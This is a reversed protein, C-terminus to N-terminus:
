RKEKAEVEPAPIARAASGWRGAEVEEVIRRMMRELQMSRSAKFLVVDGARLGTVVSSTEDVSGVHGRSWEVGAERRDERAREFGDVIAKALTGVGWLACVGVEAAYAGVEQHYREADPGLELMDGLVAVPRGESEKAVRVLHDLAARMAAPNANYTDDIVCLGELRILDGRGGTARVDTVGRACEEVELGAAYCAAAATVANAVAHGPLRCTEVKAEGGPWRLGLLHGEGEAPGELWGTVDAADRRTSVTCTVLRASVGALFPQLVASGAPVVGVGGPRLAHLLEAKAQAICELSGLLELHVPHINTIVGVDPEAVAALAAIQGIGRMGMEVVVAETEPEVAFLTLPVGVENNQNAATVVTRRVRGVMAGLLDKTSTKGASGTVAFVKADSKRRVARALAWLAAQSDDVQYLPGCTSLPREVVAGSAGAKFAAEVFDHGDFRDGRLAVFLDGPLLSRSDISVGPVAALLPRLGLARGAEDETLEIM